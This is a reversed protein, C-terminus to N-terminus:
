ISQLFKHMNAYEDVECIRDATQNLHGCLAEDHGFAEQQQISIHMIKLGSLTNTIGPKKKASESSLTIVSESLYVTAVNGDEM